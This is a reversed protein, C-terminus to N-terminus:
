RRGLIMPVPNPIYLVCSDIGKFCYRSESLLCFAAFSSFHVQQDNALLKSYHQPSSPPHWPQPFATRHNDPAPKMISTRYNLDGALFLHSTPKYLSANAPSVSLLPREDDGSLSLANGAMRKTSSFVLGRVIHKWDENRRSVAGETAALHASVFTFETRADSDKDAFSFRVSVAGKNGMQWLGVGVGATEVDEIASSDQSFVMIGTMGIAERSIVKYGQHVDGHYKQVAMRVAEQFSEFYPEVFRGGIFSQPVPALEQLALVLVDPLAPGDHGNFLHSSFLEKDVPLRACNFTVSLKTCEQQGM